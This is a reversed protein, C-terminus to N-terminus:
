NVTFTASAQKGSSDKVVLTYIGPSTSTAINLSFTVTGSRDVNFTTGAALPVDNWLIDGTKVTAGPTFNYGNVEIQTGPIGSAPTLAITSQPGTQSSTTKPVTVTFTASAQNGSSDIVVLTYIGPLTNTALNLPFTVNGMGDVNFTGGAALPVGNWLIDDSKVMAYPRFGFGSVTVSSGPVGSTPNVSIIPASKSTSSNQTTSTSALIHSPKKYNSLIFCAVTIIVILIGLSIFLGYNRKRKTESITKRRRLTILVIAAVIAAVVIAFMTAINVYNYSFIATISLPGNLVASITSKTSIVSGTWGSFSYIFLRPKATLQINTGLPAYITMPMSSPISGATAGYAYSVSVKGSATITLGPYFTATETLPSDVDALVSSDDGSYSGQGSGSWSEFQWGPSASADAPLSTGANYWNSVASVSGGTTPNQSITIYYQHYYPISIATSSVVSGTVSANPQWRETSTSGPLLNTISYSASSDIWLAQPQMTLILIFTSGFITSTFTPAGPTGGGIISYSATTLYQHFYEAIISGTSSVMGSASNSVWRESTSSGNLLSPFSYQSADVWVQTGTMTSTPSGFQQCAVAPPTYNSGGGIVSFGFTVLYQQYFVFSITQPSTATGTTAQNTQWRDTSTSSSLPNTISWSTDADVSFTQASQTLTATQQEGEFVYTLIPDQPVGTDGIVSYGFSLGILPTGGTIFETANASETAGNSTIYQLQTPNTFTFPSNPYDSFLVTGNGTQSVPLEEIWLWTSTIPAGKDNYIVRQESGYYPSTHCWETMLGTFFGQSNGPGSPTGVFYTAGESTYTEEAQAGTNDDTDQMVVNGNSFSLSVLVTDESNVPSFVAIGGGGTVPFVINGAPNYVCYILHFGLGVIPDWNYSLGIQYWYGTNGLGNVLYAPGYGDSSSQAVATVTFALSTCNQTFSTGLLEHYLTPNETSVPVTSPGLTPSIPLPSRRQSGIQYGNTFVNPIRSEIKLLTLSCIVIFFVVPLAMPFIRKAKQVDKVPKM